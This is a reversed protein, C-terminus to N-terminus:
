ARRRRLLAILGVGGLLAISPEPVVTVNDLMFGDTNVTNAYDFELTATTSSATFSYSKTVYSSGVAASITDITTGDVKVTMTAGGIGSRAATDFSLTYNEGVTLGTVATTAVNAFLANAQTLNLAYTGEVPGYPSLNNFLWRFTSNSGGSFTWGDVSTFGGDYIGNGDGYYTMDTVITSEFNGNGGAVVIAAQSTATMGLLSAAIISAYSKM